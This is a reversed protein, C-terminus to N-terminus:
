HQGVFGVYYPKQNADLNFVEKTINKGGDDWYEYTQKIGNGCLFTYWSTDDKEKELDKDSMNYLRYVKDRTEEIIKTVHFDILNM